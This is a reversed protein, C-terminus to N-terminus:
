QKSKGIPM